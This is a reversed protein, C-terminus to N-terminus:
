NPLSRPFERLTRAAGVGWGNVKRHWVEIVDAKVCIPTAPSIRPGSRDADHDTITVVGNQVFVRLADAVAGVILCLVSGQDLTQVETGPVGPLAHGRVAVTFEDHLLHVLDIAELVVGQSFEVM